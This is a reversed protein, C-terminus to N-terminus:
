VKPKPDFDRVMDTKLEKLGAPGIINRVQTLLETATGKEWQQALRWKWHGGNMRAFTRLALKQDVSLCDETSTMWKNCWSCKCQAPQRMRQTRYHRIM